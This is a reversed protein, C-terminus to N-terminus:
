ALEWARILDGDCVEVLRMKRQCVAVQEQNWASDGGLVEEVKEWAFSLGLDCMKLAAWRKVWFHGRDSSFEMVELLLVTREISSTAAETRVRWYHQIIRSPVTAGFPDKDIDIRYAAELVDEQLWRDGSALLELALDAREDATRAVDLLGIIENSPLRTSEAEARLACSLLAVLLFVFQSM